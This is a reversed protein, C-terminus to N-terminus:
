EDEEEEKIEKEEVRRVKNKRDLELYSYAGSWSIKGANVASRTQRPSIRIPTSAENSDFAINRLM